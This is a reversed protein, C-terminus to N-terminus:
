VRKDTGACSKARGCYVAGRFFRMSFGCGTSIEYTLDDLYKKTIM